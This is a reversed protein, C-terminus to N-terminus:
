GAIEVGREHLWEIVRDLWRALEHAPDMAGHKDAIRDTLGVGNNNTASYSAGRTLLLYVTDFRGRGAAVMVATDGNDSRANIDAGADLLLEISRAESGIAEFLPTRKFAGAVLNPNGGHLLAVELYAEDEARAAWHMVSGGDLFIVNPNAGLELLKTFGSLSRMSWFLPTANQTGTANVDVGEEVMRDVKDLQGKGAASALLRVKRDPFMTELSMYAVLTKAASAENAEEASELESLDLGEAGPQSVFTAVALLIGTTVLGLSQM